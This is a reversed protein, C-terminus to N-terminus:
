YYFLYIMKKSLLNGYLPPKKYYYIMMFKDVLFTVILFCVLFFFIVPCNSGYLLCLSINILIKAYRDEFPFEPGLYLDEYKIKTKLQTTNGNGFKSDSFRKLLNLILINM